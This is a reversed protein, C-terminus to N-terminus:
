GVETIEKGAGVGACTAMETERAIGAERGQLSSSSSSSTPASFLTPMEFLDSTVHVAILQRVMDLLM